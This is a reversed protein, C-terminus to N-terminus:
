VCWTRMECCEYFSLPRLYITMPLYMLSLAVFISLNCISTLALSLVLIPSSLSSRLYCLYPISLIFTWLIIFTWVNYSTFHTLHPIRLDIMESQQREDVASVSGRPPYFTLIPLRYYGLPLQNEWLRIMLPTNWASDSSVKEKRSSLTLTLPCLDPKNSIVGSRHM